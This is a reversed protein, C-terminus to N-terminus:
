SNTYMLYNELIELTKNINNTFVLYQQVTTYNKEVIELHRNYWDNDLKALKELLADVSENELIIWGTTDFYEHINPAGYYVPITKTYLCDCLKETFYNAQRSNEIVLSFQFERFLQIKDSLKLTM